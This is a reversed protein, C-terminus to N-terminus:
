SAVAPQPAILELHSRYEAPLRVRDPDGALLESAIKAALREDGTRWAADALEFRAGCQYIWPEVRSGDDPLALACAQRAFGRAVQHRGRLRNQRALHYLPEAREPLSDFAALLEDASEEPSVAELLLGLQYHCHFLEELVGGFRLRRRYYGAAEEHAGLERLTQALYFLTRASAPERALDGNLRRLDRSLRARREGATGHRVIRVGDLDAATFVQRCVLREHASGGYSWDPIGRLLCPVRDRYPGDELVVRAADADLHDLAQLGGDDLVLAMDDDLVLLWDAAGQAAAVLASRGMTDDPGPPRLFEGPLDGLVRQVQGSVDGGSVDLVVFCDIVPRVSELAREVARTGQAVLLALCISTGGSPTTM